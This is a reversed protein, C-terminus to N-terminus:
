VGNTEKIVQDQLDGKLEFFEGSNNEEDFNYVRYLSYNSKHKQMFQLEHRTLYLRNRWTGTTTKVEIFKEKGKKDFSYVDFGEGTKAIRVREAQSHM